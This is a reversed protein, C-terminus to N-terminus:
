LFSLNTAALALLKENKKEFSKLTEIAKEYEHEQLCRAAVKSHNPHPLAASSCEASDVDDRPLSRLCAAYAANGCDQRVKLYHLAKAIEMENAMDTYHAARLNEVVFDYRVTHPRVTSYGVSM